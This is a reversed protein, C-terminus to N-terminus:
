NMCSSHNSYNLRWKKQYVVNITKKAGAVVGAGPEIGTIKKGAEDSLDSIADVKMYSPVVLGVKAGKLNAGLDVM